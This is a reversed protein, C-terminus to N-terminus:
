EMRHTNHPGIGLICCKQLLLETTTVALQFGSHLISLRPKAVYGRDYTRTRGGCVFLESVVTTKSSKKIQNRLQQIM